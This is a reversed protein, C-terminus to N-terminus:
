INSIVKACRVRKGNIKLDEEFRFNELNSLKELFYQEEKLLNTFNLKPNVYNPKHWSFQFVVLSGRAPSPLSYDPLHILSSSFSLSTHSIMLFMNSIPLRTVDHLSDHSVM